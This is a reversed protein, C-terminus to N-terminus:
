VEINHTVIPKYLVTELIPSFSLSLKIGIWLDFHAALGCDM